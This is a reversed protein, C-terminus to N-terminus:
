VTFNKQHYIIRKEVGKAIAQAKSNVKLKTYIHKIHKKSTEKAIFLEEAIETCTKGKALLQLVQTERASLGSKYLHYSDVIIRSIESSLPAGGGCLENLKAIIENCVGSKKVIFGSAGAKISALILDSEVVDSLILIKSHFFQKKIKKVIEIGNQDEDFQLDTIILDLKSKIMNSRIDNYNSYAAVVKYNGDEKTLIQLVNRLNNDKLILAIKKKPYDSM